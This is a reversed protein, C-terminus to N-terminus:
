NVINELGCPSHKFFIINVYLGHLANELHKMHTVLFYSAEPVFSSMVILIENFYARGPVESTKLSSNAQDSNGQTRAAM